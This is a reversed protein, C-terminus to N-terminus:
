PHGPYSAKLLKVIAADIGFSKEIVASTINPEFIQNASLLLGPSQSTLTNFTIATENGVNLQFHLLAKPFLIVDGQKLTSAYLVNDDSIFGTYITGKLVLLTEAARPHTHLPIVGGIAFDLRAHTVGQTNLGPWEKPGALSVVAGTPSQMIQADSAAAQRFGTYVFDDTTVNTRPKCAYGNVLPANPSLDAVCFDALPDPDAAHVDGLFFATSACLAVVLLKLLDLTSRQSSRYAGM